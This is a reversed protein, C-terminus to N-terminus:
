DRHGGDMLMGLAVTLSLGSVMAYGLAAGTNTAYQALLAFVAGCGILATLAILVFNVRECRRYARSRNM